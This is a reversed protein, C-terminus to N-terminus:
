HHTLYGFPLLLTLQSVSGSPTSLKLSCQRQSEQQYYLLELGDLVYFRRLDCVPFIEKHIQPPNKIYFYIAKKTGRLTSLESNHCCGAFLILSNHQCLVIYITYKPCLL